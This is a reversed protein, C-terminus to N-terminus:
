EAAPQAATTNAGAQPLGEEKLPIVETYEPKEVSINKAINKGEATIIYDISLADQIKIEALSKVTEYITKADVSILMEKETDTEYDLYKVLVSNDQPNVAVVEGWLWQVEPESVAAPEEKAAGEQSVSLGYGLLISGAAIIGLIFYRKFKM